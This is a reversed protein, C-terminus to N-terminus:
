LSLKWANRKTDLAADRDTMLKGLRDQLAIRIGGYVDTKTAPQFIFKKKREMIGNM